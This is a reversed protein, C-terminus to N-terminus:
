KKNRCEKCVGSYGQKGKKNFEKILKIEGCKSCKKYEGKCINLYYWDTYNNEYQKVIKNIIGVIRSHTSKQDIHLIDKIENEMKGQELLELVEKQSETFECQKILNKLDMILCGLDTQVDGNRNIMSLLAKVQEKDFFDFENWSPSGNDPLPYKFVIYQKKKNFCDIFDEKLTKLNRRLLNCEIKEEKTLNREKKIDKYKDLKKKFNMYTNYYDKLEHFENGYKEVIKKMQVDNVKNIGREMKYNDQNALVFDLGNEKAYLGENSNNIINNVNNLEEIAKLFMEKSHFVRIYKDPNDKKREGKIILTGMAELTKAVNSDSYLNDSNNLLLNVGGNFGEEDNQFFVKTWFDNYFEVGNEDKVTGLLKNINDINTKVDVNKINMCERYYDTVNKNDITGYFNSNNFNKNM